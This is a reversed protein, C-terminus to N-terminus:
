VAASRQSLFSVTRVHDPSQLLVDAIWFGPLLAELVSDDRRDGDGRFGSPVRFEHLHLLAQEVEQGGLKAACQGVLGIAVHEGEDGQQLSADGRHGGALGGDAHNGVPEFPHQFLLDLALLAAALTTPGQPLVEALLLPEPGYAVLLFLFARQQLGLVQALPQGLHLPLNTAARVADGLNRIDDLVEFLQDSQGVRTSAPSSWRHSTRAAM